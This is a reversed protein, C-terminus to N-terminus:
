FPSFSFLSTSIFEFVGTSICPSVIYFLVRTLTLKVLIRGQAIILPMSSFSRLRFLSPWLDLRQWCLLINPSKKALLDSLLHFPCIGLIIKAGLVAELLLGPFTTILPSLSGTLGPPECVGPCCASLCSMVLSMVLASDDCWAPKCAIFVFLLCSVSIDFGLLTERPFQCAPKCLQECKDFCM